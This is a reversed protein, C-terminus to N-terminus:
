SGFKQALQARNRKEIEKAAAQYEHALRDLIDALESHMVTRALRQTREARQLYYEASHVYKEM